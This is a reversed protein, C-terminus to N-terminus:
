FYGLTCKAVIKTIGATLEKATLVPRGGILILSEISGLTSVLKNADALDKEGLNKGYVSIKLRDM